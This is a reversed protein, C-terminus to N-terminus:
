LHPFPVVWFWIVLAYSISGAIVLLHFIEHYGFVRPFPNPWKAAYLVGGFAYLLGGTVILLIPPLPLAALLGPLAIVGTLGTGLYLGLRPGRALRVHFVSVLVGIAAIGWVSALLAIREWGQLVNAGIATTTAAIMVYINGHDLARLVRRKAPSWTVVHYVASCAFLLVSTLGYLIMSSLRSTDDLCEVILMITFVAAGVAAVAHSWGRLLPRGHVASGLMATASQTM